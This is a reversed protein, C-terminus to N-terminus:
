RIKGYKKKKKQIGRRQNFITNALKPKSQRGKEEIQKLRTITQTFLSKTEACGKRIERENCRKRSIWEAKGGLFQCDRNPKAPISKNAM